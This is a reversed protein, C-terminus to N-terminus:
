LPKFFDIGVEVGRGLKAQEAVYAYSRKWFGVEEASMREVVGRGTTLDAGFVIAEKGIGDGSPIPIPEVTRVKPLSSEEPSKSTIVDIWVQQMKKSFSMEEASLITSAAKNGFTYPLVIGHYSKMGPSKEDTKAVRVDIHYRTLQCSSHALIAESAQFVPYRFLYSDTLRDGIKSADEDNKPVGFLRDFVPGDGPASVRARLKAIKEPSTAKFLGTFMTGEDACTGMIVWNLNPDYLSSNQTALRSDEKILVDDITPTFFLLDSKNLEEALAKEPVNRLKAVKETGSLDHPVDFVQCLYDFYRQGEQEPRIAALTSAAGSLMIARHFLGHCQPILMLWSISVSGTSEGMVTVREPDGRFARIHDHVWELGLIQDLLGWNGFSGDYWRRLQEPVANAYTQADLALEKSSIFGFFNLRYNISVVIMPRKQEISTLVLQTCDYLPTTISGIKFGGGYIWVCVPLNEESKLASVPMYINLSLCDHESMAGEYVVSSKMGFMAAYGPDLETVQPPSYGNKTADRVGQWPEAKDAPRWRGNVVGFPISLFKVVPHEEDLVGKVKGLGPITIEPQQHGQLETPFTM